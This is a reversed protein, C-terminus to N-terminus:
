SPTASTLGAALDNVRDWITVNILAIPKNSTVICSIQTNDEYVPSPYAQKPIPTVAIVPDDLSSKM